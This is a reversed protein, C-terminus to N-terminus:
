VLIWLRNYLRTMLSHKHLQNEFTYLDLKNLSFTIGVLQCQYREPLVRVMFVCFAIWFNLQDSLIVKFAWTASNTYAYSKPDYAALSPPELGRKPVSLSKQLSGSPQSQAPTPPPAVLQEWATLSKLFIALM